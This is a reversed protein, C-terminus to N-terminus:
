CGEAEGFADRFRGSGVLEEIDNGSSAITFPWLRCFWRLCKSITKSDIKLVRSKIEHPLM